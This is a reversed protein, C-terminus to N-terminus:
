LMRVANLVKSVSMDVGCVYIYVCIFGSGTGRTNQVLM